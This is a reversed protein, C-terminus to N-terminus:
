RRGLPTSTPPVVSRPISYHLEPKFNRRLEEREILRYFNSFKSQPPQHKRQAKAKRYQEDDIKCIQHQIFDASREVQANELLKRERRVEIFQWVDFLSSCLPLIAKIHRRFKFTDIDEQRCSCLGRNLEMTLRQQPTTKLM